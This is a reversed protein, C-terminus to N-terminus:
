EMIRIARVDYVLDPDDMEVTVVWRPTAQGPAKYTPAVIKGQAVIEGARNMLEAKDGVAPDPMLEYPLTVYGKGNKIELLFVSLGPCALLCAACGNCKEWDVVGPKTFSEKHIGDFRCAEVCPNCPIDEICEIVAVRKSKLIEEPPFVGREELEERTNYGRQLYNRTDSM